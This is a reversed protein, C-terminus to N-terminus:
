SGSCSRKPLHGVSIKSSTRSPLSDVSSSSYTRTPPPLTRRPPTGPLVSSNIERRKKKLWEQVRLWAELDYTSKSSYVEYFNDFRRTGPPRLVEQYINLEEEVELFLAVTALELDPNIAM